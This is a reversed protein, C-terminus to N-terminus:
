SVAVTARIRPFVPSTIGQLRHLFKAGQQGPNMASGSEPRALKRRTHRLGHNTRLEIRHVHHRFHDVAHFLCQNPATRHSRQRAPAPNSTQRPPWRDGLRNALTELRREIRARNVPTGERQYVPWDEELFEIELFEIM